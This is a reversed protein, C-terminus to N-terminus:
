PLVTHMVQPGFGSVSPENSTRVLSLRYLNWVWQELQPYWSDRDKERKRFESTALALSRRTRRNVRTQIIYEVLQVAGVDGTLLADSMVDAARVRPPLALYRRLACLDMPAPPPSVRSPVMSFLLCVPFVFTTLLPLHIYMRRIM